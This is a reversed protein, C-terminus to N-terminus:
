ECVSKSPFKSSPGPTRIQSLTLMMLCPSYILMLRAIGNKESGFSRSPIDTMANDRGAIHLTTLPLVQKAKMRLALVRLLEGAVLSGKAALRNVWSVTPSNV